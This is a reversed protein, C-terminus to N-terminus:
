QDVRFVNQCNEDVQRKIRLKEPTDSSAPFDSLKHGYSALSEFCFFIIEHKRQLDAPRAFRAMVLESDLAYGHAALFRLTLDAEKGPEEHIRAANDDFIVFHQYESNGLKVPNSISYKYTENSSPLFGEQQIIFMREIHKKSDAKIFLYRNGKVADGITFPVTGLYPLEQNVDVRIRPNEPSIFTSGEVRSVDNQGDAPEQAVVILVFFLM